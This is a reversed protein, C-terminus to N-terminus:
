FRLDLGAVAGRADSSPSLFFSASPKKPVITFREGNYIETAQARKGNAVINGVLGALLGGFLGVNYRTSDSIRGDSTSPTTFAAVLGAVEVILGGLQWTTAAQLKRAAAPVKAIKSEADGFDVFEGNQMYGVHWFGTQYQVPKSEDMPAHACGTTLVTVSFITAGVVVRKLRRSFRAGSKIENLPRSM